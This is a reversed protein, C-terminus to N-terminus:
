DAAGLTFYWPSKDRWVNEFSKIAESEQLTVGIEDLGNVLCHKKYEDMAFEIVEGDAKTITQDALNVTLEYGENRLSAVVMESDLLNMQCGVTEIYLRKTM